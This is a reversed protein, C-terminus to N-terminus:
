HIALVLPLMGGAPPSAYFRWSTELTGKAPCQPSNSAETDLKFPAAPTTGGIQENPAWTWSGKVSKAQWTCTLTPLGPETYVSTFRLPTGNTSVLEDGVIYQGPSPENVSLRFQWNTADASVEAAAMVTRCAGGSENGQFLATPTSLLPGGAKFGAVTGNFVVDKCLFSYRGANFYSGRGWWEAEITQGPTIPEPEAGPTPEIGFVCRSAGAVPKCPKAATATQTGVIGIALFAAALGALSIKARWM